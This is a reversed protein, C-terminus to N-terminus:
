RGESCAMCIEHDCDLKQCEVRWNQDYQCRCCKWRGGRARILCPAMTCLATTRQRWPTLPNCRAGRRAAAWQCESVTYAGYSHGCPHVLINKYCMSASIHTTPEWSDIQDQLHRFCTLRACPLLCM